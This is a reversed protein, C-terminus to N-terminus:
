NFILIDNYFLIFYFLFVISCVVVKEALNDLLIDVIIILLVMAFIINTTTFNYNTMFDIYNKIFDIFYNM